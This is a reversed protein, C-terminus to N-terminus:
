KRNKVYKELWNYTEWLTHLISERARYGHSEYPLMVLRVTAGHGKLAHYFRKSQLPFTGTNNDIEGHILLLPDKIKDAHMFPSMAIYVDMAEWLTREEAQFGFPTLTRNYAGSRAIGAAFLRSHALLNAVMFAGYSHGAIAIRKPDAIGMKVLHDIAGKANATLQEVYTDNPHRDGEGIIPMSANDLVAYGQTVWVYSSRKVFRYPSDTVQGAASKSKFDLPYAWILVPLPGDSKKYGPPLYLTGSLDVGDARKYKLLQKEINKLFPFPHPFHTLQKLKGTKLDRIFYNPQIKKGERCTLVKQKNGDLVDEIEEYYPAQSRWLRTTKKTEIDFRDIFPRNGQPSAGSSVLFLSKGKNATLLVRHGSANATSKFYGPSHYRDERSYEFLVVPKRDLFGPQFLERRSKRTKFWHQTVIATHDCGWQIYSFRYKCSPGELPKGTFPAALFFIKDRYEVEKTPDGEDLAEVWCLVAPADARWVFNRPGKRASDFGKPIDEALPLDAIIKVSPEQLDWTEISLPFRSYPVLYSFPKKLKELLVYRGNPSVDFSIIMGPKGVAEISPEDGLVLLNIQSTTYYTFLDEDYKNKLLDQYTAVPATKGTNEQVVPGVPVMDQQPPNGRDKPVSLFLIRKSCPMWRYPPSYAFLSSNIVQDTVRHAKGDKSNAIWLDIGAQHILTFAIMKGDASWSVHSIKGDAPLGLIPMEKMNKLNKLSLKRFFSTRAPGNNRPRFRTGALRCQPQALDEISSLNDRELILMNEGNPSVEVWPTRPSDVMRVIEDPPQQYKIAQQGNLTILSVFFVLCFLFSKNKLLYYRM